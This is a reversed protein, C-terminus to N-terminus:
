RLFGREEDGQADYLGCVVERSRGIVQGALVRDTSSWGRDEAGPRRSKGRNENSGTM